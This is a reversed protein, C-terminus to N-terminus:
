GMDSGSDRRLFIASFSARSARISLSRSSTSALSFSRLSRSIPSRGTGVEGFGIGGSHSVEESLIRAAESIGKSTSRTSFFGIGVPAFPRRRFHRMRLDSEVCRYSPIEHPEVEMRIPPEFQIFHRARSSEFRQGSSEYDLVRDLQALPADTLFAVISYLFDGTL